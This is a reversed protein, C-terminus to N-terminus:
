VSDLSTARHCVTETAHRERLKNDTRKKNVRNTNQIYSLNWHGPSTPLFGFLDGVPAGRCLRPFIRCATRIYRGDYEWFNEPGHKVM